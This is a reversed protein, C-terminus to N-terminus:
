LLLLARLQLLDAASLVVVHLATPNVIFEDWLPVIMQVPAWRRDARRLCEVHVHRHRLLNHLLRDLRRRTECIFQDRGLLSGLDEVAVM